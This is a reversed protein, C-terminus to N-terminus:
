MKRRTCVYKVLIKTHMHIRLFPMRLFLNKLFLLEQSLSRLTNIRRGLTFWLKRFRITSRCKDSLHKNTQRHIRSNEGKPSVRRLCYHNGRSRGTSYSLTLSNSHLFVFPRESREYPALKKLGDRLRAIFQRCKWKAAKWEESKIIVSKADRHLHLVEGTIKRVDSLDPFFRAIM